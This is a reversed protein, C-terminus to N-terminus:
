AVMAPKSIIGASRLPYAEAKLRVPSMRPLPECGNFRALWAKLSRRAPRNSPAATSVGQTTESAAM